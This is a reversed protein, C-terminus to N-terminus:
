IRLKQKITQVDIWILALKDLAHERLLLHAHQLLRQYDANLTTEIQIDTLSANYPIKTAFNFPFGDVNIELNWTEGEINLEDKEYYKRVIKVGL